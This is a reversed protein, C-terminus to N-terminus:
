FLPRTECVILSVEIVAEGEANEQITPVPVDTIIDPLPNKDPYPANDKRPEASLLLVHQYTMNGGNALVLGYKRDRERLERTM